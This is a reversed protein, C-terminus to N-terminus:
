YSSSPKTGVVKRGDKSRIAENRQTHAVSTEVKSEFFAEISRSGQFQGPFRSEARGGRRRGSRTEGLEVVKIKPEAQEGDHGRALSDAPRARHYRPCLPRQDLEYSLQYLM